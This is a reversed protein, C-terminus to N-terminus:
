AETTAKEAKKSVSKKVENVTAKVEEVQNNFVKKAREVNRNFVTKLESSLFEVEEKVTNQLQSVEFSKNAYREKYTEFSTKQTELEEKVEAVAKNYTEVVQERTKDFNVKTEEVLSNVADQFKEPFTM